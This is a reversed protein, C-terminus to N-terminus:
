PRKFITLVLIVNTVASSQTAGITYSGPGLPYMNALTMPSRSYSTPTNNETVATPYAFGVSIAGAVSTLGYTVQTSAGNANTGYDVPAFYAVGLVYWTQGAPVNVAITPNNGSAQASTAIAGGAVQLSGIVNLQNITLGGNTLQFGPGQLNFGGGSEMQLIGTGVNAEFLTQGSSQNRAALFGLSGDGYWKNATRQYGWAGAGDGAIDITATTIHGLNASIAAISPTTIGAPTILTGLGSPCWPSYHTASVGTQAVMPMTLYAASAGAVVKTEYKRVILRAQADNPGSTAFGGIRLWNALNTGAGALQPNSSAGPVGGDYSNGTGNGAADYFQLYCEVTCGPAGSYISGEYRTNPQIAVPSSLLYACVSPDQNGDGRSPAQYFYFTHVGALTAGAPDMGVVNWGNAYIPGGVGWSAPIGGSNETFTSNPLLNVGYNVSIERATIAGAVIKDGTITNAAMSVGQISGDVMIQGPYTKDGLVNAPIILTPQGGVLGAEMINITAGNPNNGDVFLLRGAEIVIESNTESNNSYAALGIGAVVQTGDSRQAGVKLTYQADLGTVQGQLTTVNTQITQIVQATDGGVAAQITNIQNALAGDAAIRANQETQVLADYTTGANTVTVELADVRQGMAQDAMVQVIAAQTISAALEAPDFISGDANTPTLSNVHASLTDIRSGLATDTATLVNIASTFGASQNNQTTTLDTIQSKLEIVDAAEQAVIGNIQAALATAQNTVATLAGQFTALTELGTTLVGEAFSLNDLAGSLTEIQNQLLGVVSGIQGWQGGSREQILYLVQLRARNLDDATLNASGLFAAYDPTDPTVRNILIPIDPGAALPQGLGDVIKVTQDDVFTFPWPAENVTVVIDSRELYPWAFGFTTTVGDPHYTTPQYSTSM